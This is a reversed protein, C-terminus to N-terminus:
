GNSTDLDITITPFCHNPDKTPQKGPYHGLLSIRGASNEVAWLLPIGTMETSNKGLNNLSSLRTLLKTKTVIVDNRWTKTNQDPSHQGVGKM